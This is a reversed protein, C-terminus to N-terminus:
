LAAGQHVVSVRATWALRETAGSRSKRRGACRFAVPKRVYAAGQSIAGRTSFPLLLTAVIGGKRGTAQSARM